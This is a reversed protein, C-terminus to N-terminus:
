KKIPADPRSEFLKETQAAPSSTRSLDSGKAKLTSTGSMTPHVTPAKPSWAVSDMQSTKNDAKKGAYAM